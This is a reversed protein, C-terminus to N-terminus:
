DEDQSDMYALLASFDGEDDLQQMLELASKDLKPFHVPVSMMAMDPYRDSDLVSDLLDMLAIELRAVKLVLESFDSNERLISTRIALYDNKVTSLETTENTM